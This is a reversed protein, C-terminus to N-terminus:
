SGILAVRDNSSYGVQMSPELVFHGRPTLVGPQEFIQALQECNRAENLLDLEGNLGDALHRM